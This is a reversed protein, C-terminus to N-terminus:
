RHARSAVGMPLLAFCACQPSEDRLFRRTHQQVAHTIAGCSLHDGLSLLRSISPSPRMKPM